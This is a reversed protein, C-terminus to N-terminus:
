KVKNRVQGSRYVDQRLKGDALNKLQALSDTYLKLYLNVQAEEGKIFRIAQVLTGHLLVTEFETSLWTTGATVISEPYEAYHLEVTYAADPTPGLILTNSDFIGYYKPLGDYLPDPYAERIFNVDKDLLYEYNGLGNQVALSFPFLFGTPTGVYQNGPTLTATVNSRLVPLQSDNYITYEAQQTLTDLVSDPFENELTDKVAQKLQTYNM